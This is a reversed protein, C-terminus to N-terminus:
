PFALLPVFLVGMTITWGLYFINFLVPRALAMM